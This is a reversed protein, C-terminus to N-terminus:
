DMIQQIIHPFTHNKKYGWKCVTENYDDDINRDVSNLGDVINKGHGPTIIEQDIVIQFAHSLISM